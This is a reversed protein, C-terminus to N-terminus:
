RYLKPKPYDTVRMEDGVKNAEEEDESEMVEGFINHFYYIAFSVSWLTSLFCYLETLPFITYNLNMTFGLNRWDCAVCLGLNEALVNKTHLFIM